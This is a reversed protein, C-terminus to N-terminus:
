LRENIEKKESSWHVTMPFLINTKGMKPLTGFSSLRNAPLESIKWTRNSTGPHRFLTKM